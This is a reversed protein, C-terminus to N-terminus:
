RGVLGPRTCSHQRNTLSFFILSTNLKLHLYWPETPQKVAHNTINIFRPNSNCALPIPLGLKKQTLKTIPFSKTSIKKYM